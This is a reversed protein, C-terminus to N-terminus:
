ITVAGTTFRRKLQEQKNMVARAVELADMMLVIDGGEQIISIITQLLDIIQQLMAMNGSAAEQAMERLKSEPSVIEGERRNDGIIALQPTNAQIYGGSALLPIQPASITPLNFGLSKVGSAKALWDPVDIRIKNIANIAGNLGGVLGSLVKNIFGIIGNLPTKIANKIATFVTVVISKVKNLFNSLGEKIKEFKARFWDIIPTLWGKIWNGITSFLNKIWNWANVFANKIGEIALMILAHIVQRWGPFWEDIKADIKQKIGRFFDAVAGWCNWYFTTFKEWLGSIWGWFRNWADRIWGGVVKLIEWIAMAVAKVPAFFTEFLGGFLQKIGDWIEQLDGDKFGRLIEVIGSCMAGTGSITEGFFTVIIPLVREILWQAVPLIMNEYIWILTDGLDTFGQLLDDLGEAFKDFSAQVETFDLGQLWKDTAQTLEDTQEVLRTLFDTVKPAIKETIYTAIPLVITDWTTSLLGGVSNLLEISAGGLDGLSKKLPGFDTDNFWKKTSEWIGKMSEGFPTLADKLGRLKAAIREVAGDVGSEMNALGTTYGTLDMGTIADGAIPGSKAGGSADTEPASVKNVEDFGALFKSAKQLNSATEATSDATAASADSATVAAAAMASGSSQEQKGFLSEMLAKFANAFTMLRGIVANIVKIVPTLASILGQGITAKLSDFQLKLVRVQNAWSGSTRAFDGQAASLQNQVFSYRLAVKEAESMEKTTKGFGNAMAYADLANQTMVVGLSKLSETEGTFVSKLKTFAEDQSLNYFSAVDGALSTLTTGMDYAQQESFGFAKAMAGMTGTYQKAMTESMGISQMSNKAFEDVMGSMSTFTVDVVNQVETLDSGLDLCAKGFSVLQKISFAAALAAGAKKAMSKIGDMSKDFGNKNVVLDLGIQGVSQAM